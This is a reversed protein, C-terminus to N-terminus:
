KRNVVAICIAACCTLILTIAIFVWNVTLLWFALYYATKNCYPPHSPDFNPKGLSYVWYSGLLMWVFEFIYLAYITFTLMKLQFKRNLFPLLKSVIGVCGAVILYIPIVKKIPCNNVHMFGVILMILNLILFVILTASVSPHHVKEKLHDKVGQFSFDDKNRTSGQREVDM